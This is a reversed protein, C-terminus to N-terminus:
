ARRYRSDSSAAAPQRESAASRQDPGAISMYPFAAIGAGKKGVQGALAFALIMGREMELGHYYKSFNTTVAIKKLKM